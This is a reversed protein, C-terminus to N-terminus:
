VKKIDLTKCILILLQPNIGREGREIRTILSPHVNTKIALYYRTYSCKLRHMRVVEGLDKRGTM